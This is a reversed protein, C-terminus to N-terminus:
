KNKEEIELTSRLSEIGNLLSEVDNKLASHVSMLGIQVHAAANVVQDLVQDDVEKERLQEIVEELHHLVTKNTEYMESIAALSQSFMLTPFQSDTITESINRIEHLMEDLINDRLFRKSM